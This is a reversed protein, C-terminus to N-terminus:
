QGTKATHEFLHLLAGTLIYLHLLLQALLFVQVMMNKGRGVISDDAM